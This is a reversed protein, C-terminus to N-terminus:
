VVSKRDAVGPLIRCNVNASVQQPLANPAHGGDIMTTVCTTRLMGNWSPNIDWLRQAAAEDAPDALVARMDAAVEPAVQKAQATFYGRTAANVAIPFQYSGLRVLAASLRSIPLACTQVGTVLACRTQRRRSPFFFVSYVIGYM